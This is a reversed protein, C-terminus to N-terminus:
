RTSSVREDRWAHFATGDARIENLQGRGRLLSLTLPPDERSAIVLRLNPPLHDLLFGLSEHISETRINHYDDLVLIVPRKGVSFSSVDNVLSILLPELSAPQTQAVQLAGM